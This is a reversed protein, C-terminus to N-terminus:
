AHDGHPLYYCIAPRTGTGQQSHQLHTHMIHKRFQTHQICDLISLKQCCYGGLHTSTQALMIMSEQTNHKIGKYKTFQKNYESDTADNPLVPSTCSCNGFRYAPMCRRPPSPACICADVIWVVFASRYRPVCHLDVSQCPCTGVCM